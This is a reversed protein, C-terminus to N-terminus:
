GHPVELPPHKRHALISSEYLVHTMSPSEVVYRTRGELTSRTCIYEGNKTLIEWVGDETPPGPLTAHSNALAVLAELPVHKGDCDEVSRVSHFKDYWVRLPTKM